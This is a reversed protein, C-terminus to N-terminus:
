PAVVAGPSAPGGALFGLVAPNFVEPREVLPGHDAEPVVVLDAGARAALRRGVELPFVPDHEGWVVLVEHGDLAVSAAADRRTPLDALLARQEERNASFVNVLLDQLLWRPYDPDDYWTLDLLRQVDEPTDPLMLEEASAVGFRRYLAREDDETFEGGPSDVLVVRGVRDPALRLLELAVWGGYSVGVVDARAVGEHDLLALMARAQSEISPPGGGRSRGFWLLDPVLVDHREGFPRLQEIWTGLGDGGFGHLLLVPSGGGDRWRHVTADGLEVTASTYGWREARGALVKGGFAAVSCGSLLLLPLLRAM